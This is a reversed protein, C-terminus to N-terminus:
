NMINNYMGPLIHQAHLHAGKIWGTNRQRQNLEGQSENHEVQVHAWQQLHNHGEERSSNRNYQHHNLTSERPGEMNDERGTGPSSQTPQEQDKYTNQQHHKVLNKWKLAGKDKGRRTTKKLAGHKKWDPATPIVHNWLTERELQNNLMMESNNNLSGMSLTDAPERSEYPHNNPEPTVYGLSWLNQTPTTSSEIQHVEYWNRHNPAKTYSFLNIHNFNDHETMTNGHYHGTKYSSSPELRSNSRQGERNNLQDQMSMVHNQLDMLKRDNNQRLDNLLLELRHFGHDLTRRSEQQERSVEVVHRLVSEVNQNVGYLDHRQGLSVNHTIMLFVIIVVSHQNQFIFVYHNAHKFLSKKAILIISFVISVHHYCLPNHSYNNKHM